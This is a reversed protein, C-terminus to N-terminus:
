SDIGRPVALIQLAAATCTQQACTGGKRLCAGQYSGFDLDALSDLALPELKPLVLLRSRLTRKLARGLALGGGM